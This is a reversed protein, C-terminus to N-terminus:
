GVVKRMNGSQLQQSIRLFLGGSEGGGNWQVGTKMAPPKAAPPKAQGMSQRRPGITMKALKEAADTAGTPTTKVKNVTAATCSYFLFIDILVCKYQM